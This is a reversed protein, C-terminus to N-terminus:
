PKRLTITGADAASEVDLIGRKVTGDHWRAVYRYNGSVEVIPGTVERWHACRTTDNPDVKQVRCLEYFFAPIISVQTAAPQTILKVEIEGGGCGVGDASTWLAHPHVRRYAALVDQLSRRKSDIRANWATLSSKSGSARGGFSAVAEFRSVAASWATRPYGLRPLDAQWTLVRDAIYAYAEVAPAAGGTYDPSECEDLGYRGMLTNDYASRFAADSFAPTRARVAHVAAKVEAYSVSAASAPAPPLLALSLAVIAVQM